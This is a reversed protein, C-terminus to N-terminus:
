YLKISKIIVNMMNASNQSEQLTICLYLNTVNNELRVSRKEESTGRFAEILSLIFVFSNFISASFYVYNFITKM